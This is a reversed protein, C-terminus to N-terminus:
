GPPTPTPPFGPDLAFSRHTEWQNRLMFLKREFQRDGALWRGDYPAPLWETRGAELHVTVRLRGRYRQTRLDVIDQWASREPGPVTHIGADDVETGEDRGFALGALGGAILGVVLVLLGILGWWQSGCLQGVGTVVAGAGLGALGGLYFGHALAQVPTARFSVM